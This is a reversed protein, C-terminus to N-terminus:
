FWGPFIDRNASHWWIRNLASSRRPDNKWWIAQIRKYEKMFPLMGVILLFMKLFTGWFNPFKQKSKAIIKSTFFCNKKENEFNHLTVFLPIDGWSITPDEHFKIRLSMCHCHVVLSSVHEFIRARPTFTCICAFSTRVYSILEHVCTQACIKM